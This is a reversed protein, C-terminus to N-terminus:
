TNLIKDSIKLNKLIELSYDWYNKPKVANTGTKTFTISEPMLCTWFISLMEQLLTLTVALSKDTGSLNLKESKIKSTNKM